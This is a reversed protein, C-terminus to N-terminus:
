NMMTYTQILKNALEMFETKLYFKVHGDDKMQMFTDVFRIIDIVNPTPDSVFLIGGKKLVRGIEAFTKEIDPFHHLACLIFAGCFRGVKKVNYLALIIEECNNM